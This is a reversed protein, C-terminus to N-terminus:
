DFQRLYESIRLDQELIHHRLWGQLFYILEATLVTEGEQYERYTEDVQELLKRHEKIHPERGPFNIRAMLEEEDRFHQRTYTVLKKLSSGVLDQGLCQVLAHQLEDLMQFLQQHQQDVMVDGIHLQESWRLENM